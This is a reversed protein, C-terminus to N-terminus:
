RGFGVTLMLAFADLGGDLSSASETFYYKGEVGLVISNKLTVTAGLFTDAAAVWGDGDVSVGVGDRSFDYYISGFGAGGYLELKSLPLSFRGNFMFPIGWLDADVGGKSGDADIYGIEFETAFNPSLSKMWSGAIIYGDDLIDADDYSYYGGKLTFRSRPPAPKQVPAQSASSEIAAALAAPDVDFEVAPMEPLVIEAPSGVNAPSVAEAPAISPAAACSPAREPVPGIEWHNTPASVCGLIGFIAFSAVFRTM